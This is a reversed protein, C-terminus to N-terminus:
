IKFGKSLIFKSGVFVKKNFFHLSHWQSSNEFNILFTKTMNSEQKSVQKQLKKFAKSFISHRSEPSKSKLHISLNNWGEM